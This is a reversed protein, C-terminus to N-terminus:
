CTADELSPLLWYDPFAMMKDLDFLTSGLNSCPTTCQEDLEQEEWSNDYMVEAPVCASM